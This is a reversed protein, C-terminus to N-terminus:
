NKQWRFIHFISAIRDFTNRFFTKIILFKLYAVADWSVKYKGLFCLLAAREKLTQTNLNFLCQYRKKYQRYSNRFWLINQCNTFIKWCDFSWYTAKEQLDLLLQAHAKALLEHPQLDPFAKEVASMHTEFPVHFLFISHTSRAARNGDSGCYCLSRTFAGFDIAHIQHRKALEVALIKAGAGLSLMVCDVNNKKVSQELDSLIGDLNELLKKGNNQPRLFFVSSKGPEFFGHAASLYEPRDILHSLIPAESGCFLIKRNKSYSLFFHEMWSNLVYSVDRSSCTDRAMERYRLLPEFNSPWNLDLFDVFDSEKIANILKGSFTKDLGTSGRQQTGAVAWPDVAKDPNDNGELLALDYDGLRIFSFSPRTELLDNLRKAELYRASSVPKPGLDLRADLNFEANEM